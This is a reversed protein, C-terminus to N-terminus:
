VWQHSDGALIANRWTGGYQGISKLVEVTLPDDPLRKEVPPLTGAAVAKDLAPAESFAWAGTSGGLCLAMASASVLWASRLSETRIFM